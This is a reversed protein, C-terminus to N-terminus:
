PSTPTRSARLTQFWRDRYSSLSDLDLRDCNLRRQRTIATITSTALDATDLDRRLRTPGRRRALVGDLWDTIAGAAIV